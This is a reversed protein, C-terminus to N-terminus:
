LITTCNKPDFDLLNGTIKGTLLSNPPSSNAGSQASRWATQVACFNRESQASIRSYHGYKAITGPGAPSCLVSQEATFATNEQSKEPLCMRLGTEVFAYPSHLAIVLWPNPGLSNVEDAGQFVLEVRGVLGNRALKRTGLWSGLTLSPRSETPNEEPRCVALEHSVRDESFSV